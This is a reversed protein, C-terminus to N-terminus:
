RFHRSVAIGFDKCHSYVCKRWFRVYISWFTCFYFGFGDGVCGGVDASLIRGYVSLCKRLLSRKDFFFLDLASEVEAWFRDVCWNLRKGLETDFRRTAGLLTFGEPIDLLLSFPFFLPCTSRQLSEILAVFSVRCRKVIKKSSRWM